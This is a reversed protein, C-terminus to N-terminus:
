SSVERREGATPATAAVREARGTMARVVAELGVGRSGKVLVVDGARLEGAFREAASAADAVWASDAGAARAADVLPKALDGVGVIPSFGQQAAERGLEVHFRAADPGLERMEGLVAWRRRASGGLAAASQLARSAASPNSNYCDEVVTAEGDALRVSRLVGRMSAPRVNEVGRAMDELSVGAHWAIAAAALLNEVNYAGYLPLRLAASEDGAHLRLTVGDGGREVVDSAWVDGRGLGFTVKRGGFRQAIRVVQPDDLNVVLASDPSAADLGELIEAKADGIAEVTGFFELHVPRVSVVAAVDPRALRSLKGLEGPTSMGMEAVFWEAGEDMGLLALPFGYLNNLNGPSKETRFRAALLAALIEKTTTKGVSGTIGALRRPARARAWRTLEHLAAEVDDVQILPAGHPLEAVRDRRVVAARAGAGLAAAVYGHGDVRSGPLAFFLEGERTKRSDISAGQWIWESYISPLDARMAAAAEVLAGRM